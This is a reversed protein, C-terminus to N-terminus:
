PAPASPSVPVAAPAPAVPQAALDKQVAAVVAQIAAEAAAGAKPHGLHTLWVALFGGAANEAKQLTLGSAEAVAIGAQVKKLLGHAALFRKGEIIAGTLAAGVVSVAASEVVPLVVTHLVDVHIVGTPPLPSTLRLRTM